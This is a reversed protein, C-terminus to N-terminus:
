VGAPFAKVAPFGLTTVMRNEFATAVSSAASPFAIMTIQDTTVYSAWTEDKATTNKYKLVYITYNDGDVFSTFFQNYEPCDYSLHKWDSQYSYNQYEMIKMDNATGYSFTPLSTVAVTAVDSCKETATEIMFDQSNEAGKFLYPYLFMEDLISPQFLVCQAQYSTLPMSVITIVYPDAEIEEEPDAPTGTGSLTFTALHGWKENAASVLNTLVVGMDDASLNDCPGTGCDCCPTEVFVSDVRGGAYVANTYFSSFRMTLNYHEDCKFSENFTLTVTTTGSGVKNAVKYWEIINEKKILGSKKSGLRVKDEPTRGQIIQIGNVTDGANAAITKGYDKFIGIQGTTLSQSSGSTVMTGASPVIILTPLSFDM